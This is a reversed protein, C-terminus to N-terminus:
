LRLLKVSAAEQRLMQARVIVLARSLTDAKYTFPELGVWDKWEVVIQFQM